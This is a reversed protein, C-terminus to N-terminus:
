TFKIFFLALYILLTSIRHLNLLFYPWIFSYPPFAFHTPGFLRTPQSILYSMDLYLTPFIWFHYDLLSM